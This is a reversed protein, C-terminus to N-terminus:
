GQDKMEKEDQVHLPPAIDFLSRRQTIETELISYVEQDNKFSTQEKLNSLSNPITIFFNKLEIQFELFTIKKVNREFEIEVKILNEERINKM